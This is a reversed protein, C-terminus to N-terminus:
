GQTVEGALNSFNGAALDADRIFVYLPDSDMMSLGVEYISSIRFLLRWEAAGAAISLANDTLWTVEPRMEEYDDVLMAQGEERQFAIAAEYDTMTRWYDSFMLGRRGIQGFHIQRYLHTCHESSTAFGLVQGVHHRKWFEGELDVLRGFSETEFQEATAVQVRGQFERDYTAISLSVEARARHGKLDLLYRNALRDRTPTPIRRLSGPPGAHFIADLLVPKAASEMHRVFISLLGSRPLPSGGPLQPLEAFNIQAIFNSFKAQPDQPDGSCPWHEPSPLDPEGGFRTNGVARYDDPGDLVLAYCEASNAFIAEEAAQLGQKRIAAQLRAALAPSLNSM